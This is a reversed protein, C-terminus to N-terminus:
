RKPLRVYAIYHALMRPNFFTELIEKRSAHDRNYGGGMDKLRDEAFRKDDESLWRARSPYDPLFFFLVVASVLTILGEIIFLWRFGQLGSSGNINGV